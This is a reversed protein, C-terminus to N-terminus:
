REARARFRERFFGSANALQWVGLLAAQSLAGRATPHSLGDRLCRTYFTLDPRFNLGFPGGSKAPTASAARAAHYRWAGQGYSFHQRWFRRLTLDHAHHIVADHVYSLKGGRRRWRDCLERDESARFTEDFGGVGVFAAASCAMNSSAFSTADDPDANFHAYATDQILQSTAAYPNHALANVTRGGCLRSPEKRLVNAFARLWQPDVACDDDTFAILDGTGAAVGANRATAPGANRAQRALKVTIRDRVEDVIVNPPTPSADDAVIVEFRDRPYDLTAMAALCRALQGPRNYTPIVVSFTPLDHPQM